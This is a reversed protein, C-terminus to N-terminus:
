LSNDAGTAITAYDPYFSGSTPFLRQLGVPTPGIDGNGAGFVYVVVNYLTIETTRKPQWVGQANKAREEEGVTDLGPQKRYYIETTEWIRSSQLYSQRDALVAAQVWELLDGANTESM